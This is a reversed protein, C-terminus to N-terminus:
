DIVSWLQLIFVGAEKGKLPIIRHQIRDLSTSPNERVSAGKIQKGESRESGRERVTRM